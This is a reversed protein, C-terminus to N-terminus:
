HIKYQYLYKQKFKKIGVTIYLIGAKFMITPRDTRPVRPWCTQWTHLTGHDQHSLPSQLCHGCCCRLALLLYPQVTSGCEFSTTHLITHVSRLLTCSTCTNNDMHITSIMTAHATLWGVHKNAVNADFRETAMPLHKLTIYNSM